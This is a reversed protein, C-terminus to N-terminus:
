WIDKEHNSSIRIKQKCRGTLKRTVGFRKARLAYELDSKNNENAFLRLQFTPVDKGRM